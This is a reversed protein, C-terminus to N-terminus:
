VAHVVTTCTVYWLRRVGASIAGESQIKFLGIEGSRAVHTGGCLEVSLGIQLVRVRALQTYKDGFFAIAGSKVASEPDMVKTEAPYNEWVLQNVRAEIRMRQEESLPQYSTYVFRLYDPAVVSGAQMAGECFM